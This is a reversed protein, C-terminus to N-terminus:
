ESAPAPTWRPADWDDVSIMWELARRRETVVSFDFNEPLSQKSILCKDMAWHLCYGLDLSAFIEGEHIRKAGRRFRMSSEATRLDPTLRVLDSPCASAFDLSPYYGLSWALAYLAEVQIQFRRANGRPPANLFESEAGTLASNLKEQALWQLADSRPLGYATAVVACLALAREVIEDESRFSAKAVALLPLGDPSPFGVERMTDATADRITQLNM